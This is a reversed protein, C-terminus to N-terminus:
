FSYGVTFMFLNSDTPPDNIFATEDEGWFSRRYLIGCTYHEGMLYNIGVQAYPSLAMSSDQRAAAYTLAATTKLFTASYGGSLYAQFKNGLMFNKRMGFSYERIKSQSYYVPRNVYRNDNSLDDSIIFSTELGFGDSSATNAQIGIASQEGTQEWDTRNDFNRMGGMLDFHPRAATCASCIVILSAFLLKM